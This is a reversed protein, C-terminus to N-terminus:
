RRATTPGDVPGQAEALSRVQFRGDDRFLWTEMFALEGRRLLGPPPAPFPAAARVSRTAVSALEDDPTRLTRVGRIAGKDDVTVQLVIVARLLHPPTGEFTNAASAKLVRGAIERKYDDLTAIPPAVPAAQQPAPPAPKPAPPEPPTPSGCAAVVVAAIGLARKM